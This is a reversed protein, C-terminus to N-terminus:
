NMLYFDAIDANEPLRNPNIREAWDILMLNKGTERNIERIKKSWDAFADKDPYCAVTDCPIDSIIRANLNHKGGTAVWIFLPEFLSMLVATKESEVLCIPKSINRGRLQHLGFLCQKLEFNEPVGIKKHVWQPNVTKDRKGTQPNYQMIKGSRIRNEKDIQWYIVSQNRTCGLYYLQCVRNIQEIDAFISCLFKYFNSRKYANLFPAIEIQLEHIKPVLPEIPKYEIKLNEVGAQKPTLHYGCHIDRDCKGISENEFYGNTTNDKYRVFTKKGCNPCVFKRSSRDLSYRFKAEM